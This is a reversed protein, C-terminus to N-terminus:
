QNVRLLFCSAQSSYSVSVEDNMQIVILGTTQTISWQHLGNILCLGRMNENIVMKIGIRGERKAETVWLCRRGALQHM